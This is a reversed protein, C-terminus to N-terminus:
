TGLLFGAYLAVSQRESLCVEGDIIILESTFAENVSRGADQLHKVTQSMHQAVCMCMYELM